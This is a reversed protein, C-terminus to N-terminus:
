KRKRRILLIIGTLLILSPLIYVFVPKLIKGGTKGIRMFKDEPFASLHYVPYENNMIWSYGANFLKEGMSRGNSMFDADGTVIIRQEKGNIMRSMKIGTIYREKKIDGEQPAFVPAASDAVLHGNEIWRDEKAAADLIPQIKFGGTSSYSLNVAGKHFVNMPPTHLMRYVYLPLENGLNAGTDTIRGQFFDPMEHKNLTVITGKDATVGIRELLPQMIEQKGPEAYLIADGGQDLWHLIKNREVSDLAARPDAVVLISTKSPIDNTQLNVTDINVGKNFLSGRSDKSSTHNSYEREGRRFPSREFHGTTFVLEPVSDRTLRRIAGSLHNEHPWIEIDNYTRLFTKKQKYELQMVLGYDESKLDIKKRMEEPSQFLARNVGTFEAYKDAAEHLNKVRFHKIYLSDGDMADYYYEYAFEINPYFRTVREWFDRIYKNRHEPLGAMMNKGLLNDYLTVKLPSGDLEKLVAQTASHLTNLQRVTVDAYGIYGPRSTCYGIALAAVFVTLYRITSVRWHKSEQTSKLKILTFGIFLCIIILFYCIERTTILGAVMQNTRGSISLFWTLDRVFDYQQWLDQIAYLAFFVVFTIIGAVIQYATVSSIFLGIASYTCALLFIALLASLFWKYEAHAISFYGTLLFLAVCTILVLNFAVLALYKGFVIDRTRIPSSYLLKISGSQIERNIIGMTLLPIFLYLKDIMQGYSKAFIEWSLGATFGLWDPDSEQMVQQMRTYEEIPVVFQWACLVFFVVTLLWAIPSYFMNRLEAQAVKFITYM